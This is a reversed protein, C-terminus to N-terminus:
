SAVTQLFTLPIRSWCSVSNSDIEQFNLMYHVNEDVADM